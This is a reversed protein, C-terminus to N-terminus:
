YDFQRQNSNTGGTIRNAETLVGPLGVRVQTGTTLVSEAPLSEEKLAPTWCDSASVWRRLEPDSGERYALEGIDLFIGLTRHRLEAEQSLIFAQTSGSWSARNSRNDM